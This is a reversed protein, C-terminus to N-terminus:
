TNLFYYDEGQYTVISYDTRVNDATSEWDIVVYWPIESDVVGCDELLEQVYDVFDEEPILTVGYQWESIEDRMECLEDYEEHDFDLEIDDYEEKLEIIEERISEITDEESNESVLGDLEDELGILYEEIEDMRDKANELDELTDKLERTDIYNM